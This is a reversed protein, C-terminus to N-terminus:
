WPGHSVWRWTASSVSFAGGIVPGLIAGVGWSLGILANYLPLEKPEAYVSFYNLAGLYLGAGGIGAIVRGVVLAASSPAAGCIASGVEFIFISSLILFKINFMGYLQGIVLIVAVSAMPFGIGIWPLNQIDEFTEYM